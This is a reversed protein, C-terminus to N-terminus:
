EGHEGGEGMPEVELEIEAPILFHFETGEGLESEIWIRGYHLEVLKKAIPLGLGTGEYQRSNSGDVQRFEDFILEQHERDIGIGTDAVTFHILSDGNERVPTIELRIHGEPETFKNANGLLNLLVQKIKKKDINLTSIEPHIETTFVQNKNRIVGSLTQNIEEVLASCEVKELNLDMQGSRIKSMDLIDNILSLLHQGSGFINEIFETQEENMEGALGDILVESFGIISNLPTRLEHSMNALFEDKFKNMRALEAFSEELAQKSRNLDEIQNVHNIGIAMQNTLAEITRFEQDNLHSEDRKVCLLVGLVKDNLSIPMSIWTGETSFEWTGNERYPRLFEDLEQTVITQDRLFSRVLLHKESEGVPMTRFHHLWDPELGSGYGYKLMTSSDEFLYIASADVDLVQMASSILHELVRELRTESLIVKNIRNKVELERNAQKLSLELRRKETIDEILGEYVPEDRLEDQVKQVNVLVIIEEGDCRTLTLEADSVVSQADLRSVLDEIVGPNKFISEIHEITYVEEESDFGLIEVLRPNVTTFAGDTTIRFIGILSNNVLTRYKKESERLEAELQKRETIDHLVHFYGGTDWSESTVPQSSVLARVQKGTSTLFTLENQASKGKQLYQVLLDFYKKRSEEDMFRYIPSSMLTESPYGLMQVLSPNIDRTRDEDDVVWLADVMNEIYQDRRSLEDNLRQMEENAMTLEEVRGQLKKVLEESYQRFYESRREETTEETKGLLYEEIQDPLAFLDIPKPIFGKCGAALTKEREEASNNGTVAIIPVDKLEHFSRIRTTAEYGSMSPLQLDMLILDPQFSQAKKIGELGTSAGAVQYNEELVRSVLKRISQEDEIHLIRPKNM